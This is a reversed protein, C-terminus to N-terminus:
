RITHRLEHQPESVYTVHHLDTTLIIWCHSMAYMIILKMSFVYVDNRSIM